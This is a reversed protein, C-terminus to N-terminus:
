KKEPSPEGQALSFSAPLLEVVTLVQREERDNGMIVKIDGGFERLVQRCAGCPPCFADGGATVAIASFEREGESVAKVLAAQEACITLGYAANEVNCGRYVRGSKTLLAAGVMFGSYPAYAHQRAARAAALLELEDM